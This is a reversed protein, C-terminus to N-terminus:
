PVDPVEGRSLRWQNLMPTRGEGRGGGVAGVTAAILSRGRAYLRRRRHNLFAGEDNGPSRWDLVRLTCM